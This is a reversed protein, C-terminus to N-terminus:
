PYETVKPTPPDRVEPVLITLVRFLLLSGHRTDEHDGVARAVQFLVVDVREIDLDHGESDSKPVFIVSRWSRLMSSEVLSHRVGFVEGLRGARRGTGKLLGKAICAASASLGHDTWWTSRGTLSM